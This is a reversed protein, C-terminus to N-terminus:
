QRIHVPQSLLVSIFMLNSQEIGNGLSPGERHWEPLKVYCTLSSLTSSNLVIRGMEQVFFDSLCVQQCWTGMYPRPMTVVETNTSQAHYLHYMPM